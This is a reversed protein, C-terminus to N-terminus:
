LKARPTFRRLTAQFDSSRMAANIARNEADCVREIEARRHGNLLGKSLRLATPNLAALKAALAMAADAVDAQPVVANALGLDLADQASFWEGLYLMRKARAPGVILPLMLSCSLEPPIGLAAFPYQFRAKDSCVVLDHFLLAINAGGGVALGNVACVSPKPFDLFALTLAKLALDATFSAKGRGAYLTRYAAPLKVHPPGAALLEKFDAGATFARDGAGTWVACRVREDREMHELLIFMEQVSNATLPNLKEPANLTCVAVGNGHLVYSVSEPEYAESADLVGYVRVGSGSADGM